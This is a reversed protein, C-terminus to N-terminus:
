SDYVVKGERLAPDTILPPCRIIEQFAEKDLSKKEM